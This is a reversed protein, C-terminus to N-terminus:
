YYNFVSITDAVSFSVLRNTSFVDFRCLTPCHNFEPLIPFVSISKKTDPIPRGDTM